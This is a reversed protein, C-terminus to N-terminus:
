IHEHITRWQKISLVKLVDYRSSLGFERDYFQLTRLEVELMDDLGLNLDGCDIKDTFDDDLFSVWMLHEAFGDHGM